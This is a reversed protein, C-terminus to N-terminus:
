PLWGEARCMPPVCVCICCSSFGEGEVQMAGVLGKACGGEFLSLAMWSKYQQLLGGGERQQLDQTVRSSDFCGIQSASAASM